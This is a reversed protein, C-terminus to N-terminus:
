TGNSLISFSLTKISDAKVSTSAHVIRFIAFIVPFNNDIDNAMGIVLSIDRDNYAHMCEFLLSSQSPSIAEDASATRSSLHITPAIAGKLVIPKGIQTESPTASKSM